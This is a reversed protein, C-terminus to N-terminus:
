NIQTQNNMNEFYKLYKMNTYIFVGVTLRYTNLDFVILKPNSIQLFIM